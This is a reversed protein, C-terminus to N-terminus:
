KKGAYLVYTNGERVVRADLSAAVLELVQEVPENRFTATYRVGALLTDGLRIDADFWRAMRPVVDGLAEREFVLKGTTWAMEDAVNAGHQVAVSGASDIRAVDGRTLTTEKVKVSGQAVSVKVERADPYHSVVFVTGVDEVVARSTRVRFPTAKHVVDFYAEGELTVERSTGNFTPPVTLRSDVNLLVRTGDALYIDARQAKRTAFIRDPQQQVQAVRRREHRVMLERVGFALLAVAACAGLLAPWIRSSGLVTTRSYGARNLHLVRPAEHKGPTSELRGSVSHWAADVDVDKSTPAAVVGAADWIERLADLGQMRACRAAEEPTAEGSFYRDLVDWEIAIMQGTHQAEDGAGKTRDSM